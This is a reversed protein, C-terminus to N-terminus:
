KSCIDKVKVESFFTAKRDGVTDLIGDVKEEAVWLHLHVNLVM